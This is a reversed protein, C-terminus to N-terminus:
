SVAADPQREREAADPIPHNAFLIQRETAGGHIARVVLAIDVRRHQEVGHM